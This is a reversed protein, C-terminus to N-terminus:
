HGRPVVVVANPVPWGGRVDVRLSPARIAMQTSPGGDFLMGERCAFGGDAESRAMLNALYGIGVHAGETALLIM